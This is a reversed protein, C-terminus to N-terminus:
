GKKDGFNCIPHCKIPAFKNHVYNKPTNWQSEGLDAEMRESVFDISIM